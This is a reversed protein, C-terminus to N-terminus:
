KKMKAREKLLEQNDKIIKDRMITRYKYLKVFLDPDTISLIQAALLGANTGNDLGVAAVPVGPPMQVISLISDINVNGSVPVGIVPKLTHSAIVGPLAASLGAIAIFVDSNSEDIIKTVVEPTRHASAIHLEYGIELEDLIKTVKEAIPMDSKSGLIITVVIPM